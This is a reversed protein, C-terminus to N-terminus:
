ADDFLDAAGDDIGAHRVLHGLHACEPLLWERAYRAAARTRAPNPAHEAAAEMRAWAAGLAVLGTLRLYIVAAAGLPKRQLAADTAAQWHSLASSLAPAMAPTADVLAAEIDAAFARAGAGDAARLAREVLTNAQIGNTGEYIRTIRADRWVQEVRYETLYGYGGHIQIALDAVESACDSAFAKCVPTLFDVLAPRQGLDLEVQTRYVLARCGETLASQHLLMRRVDAHVNIPVQGTGTGDRGQRREAAYARARQAAVAALGVAQLATEIRQANMMVFMCALGQGKAGLMEADAGDFALQCTPSGHMGMKEELRLCAIANRSGDDHRAPSLFLSLGKVGDPAGPTHALVLHVINDTLDHDGGSIFIKEGHLRYRGDDAPEARTRIASLDSGAQAETLCMTALWQGSVLPPLYRAQQEPTGSAAITRAAAQGLAVVMQLSVCAGALMETLVGGLAHPLAQGGHTEPATLGIWGADRYRRYADVFAAPLRVRGDVLRAGIADGIPDLPAIEGDIFDAAADLVQTVIDADWDPLRAADAGHNLAFLLNDTPPRYDTM